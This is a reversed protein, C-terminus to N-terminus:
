DVEEWEIVPPYTSNSQESIHTQTPFWHWVEPEPDSNGNDALWVYGVVYPTNMFTAPDFAQRQTIVLKWVGPQDPEQDTVLKATGTWNPLANWQAL